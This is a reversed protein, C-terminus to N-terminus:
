EWGERGEWALAFRAAYNWQRVPNGKRAFPNSCGSPGLKNQHAEYLDEIEDFCSRASLNRRTAQLKEEDTASKKHGIKEELGLFLIEPTDQPGYGLFRFLRNWDINQNM